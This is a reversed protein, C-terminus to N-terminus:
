GEVSPEDSSEEAFVLFDDLVEQATAEDSLM